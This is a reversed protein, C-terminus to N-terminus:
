KKCVIKTVKQFITKKLIHSHTKSKSLNIKKGIHSFASQVSELASSISKSGIYQSSGLWAYSYPMSPCLTLDCLRGYSSYASTGLRKCRNIKVIWFRSIMIDDEKSFNNFNKKVFNMRNYKHSIWWQLLCTSLSLDTNSVAFFCDAVRKLIYRRFYLYSFNTRM